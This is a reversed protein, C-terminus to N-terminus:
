RRTSARTSAVIVRGSRDLARVACFVKYVPMRAEAAESSDARAASPTVVLTRAAGVKVSPTAM